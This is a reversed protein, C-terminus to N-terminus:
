TTYFKGTFKVRFIESMGRGSNIDVVVMTGPDGDTGHNDDGKESKGRSWSLNEVYYGLDDKFILMFGPVERTTWPTLDLAPFM